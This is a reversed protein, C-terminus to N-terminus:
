TNFGAGSQKWAECEDSEVKSADVSAFITPVRLCGSASKGDVGVGGAEMRDVDSDVELECVSVRRAFDPLCLAEACVRRTELGHRM